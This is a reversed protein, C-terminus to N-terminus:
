LRPGGRVLKTTLKDVKGVNAKFERRSRKKSIRKRM